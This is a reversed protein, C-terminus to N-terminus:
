TRLLLGWMVCLDRSIFVVSITPLFTPPNTFRHVENQENLENFALTERMYFGGHRDLSFIQIKIVLPNFLIKTKIIWSVKLYWNPAQCSATEMEHCTFREEAKTPLLRSITGWYFYEAGIDYPSADPLVDPWLIKSRNFKHFSLFHQSVSSCLHSHFM